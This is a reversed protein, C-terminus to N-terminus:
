DLEVSFSFLTRIRKNWIYFKMIRDLVTRSQISLFSSCVKLRGLIDEVKKSTSLM